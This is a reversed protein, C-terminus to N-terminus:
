INETLPERESNIISLRNYYIYGLLSIVVIINFITLYNSFTLSHNTNLGM